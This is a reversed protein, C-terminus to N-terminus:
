SALRKYIALVTGVALNGSSSAFKLRTIAATNKWHASWIGEILNAATADPMCSVIEFPKFGVTGAYNACVLRTVSFVNATLSAGAATFFMNASTTSAAGTVTTNSNQLRQVDYNTGTDNNATVNIQSGTVAQDTRCYFFAELVDGNTWDSSGAQAADVGTDISAKVSGTVTFRYILSTSGIGGGSGSGGGGPTILAM